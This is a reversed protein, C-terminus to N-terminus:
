QNKKQKEANKVAQELAETLLRLTKIRAYYKCNSEIIHWPATQTSTKQLMEDVAVEYEDWKDRNRWDEDTIKWRKEPTNQRQEFRQKQTDKDIQIWFKLIVAGWDSLQQEFENIETYARQWDSVSCFGELREVMVRGYWTRDFIVIHGRKPLHEWFRWLYHRSLEYPKPAAIPIVQYGRPDLAGAIRKINGGKGAADWGEYALIVPIKWRYIQNHLEKLRNQYYKLQKKYEERSMTQTLSIQRLFPVPQLPFSKQLPSYEPFSQSGCPLQQERARIAAEISDCLIQLCEAESACRRSSDVWHWPAYPFDTARRYAEFDSLCRSYHHNQWLDHKSVRWRTDPNSQLRKLRKKQEKQSINFFLKVLLYGNDCLQREFIRIEELRTQYQEKTLKGAQLERLTEDMWGSDFFVMKGNEPIHKMYRALFPKSLEEASPASLSIVQFFRPDLTHIMSAIRGGKGAAGWGEALVIVPLSFTQLKTQLASLKEGLSRIRNKQEEKSLSANLSHSQAYVSADM